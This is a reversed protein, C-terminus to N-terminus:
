CGLKAEDVGFFYSYVVLNCGTDLLMAACSYDTVIAGAFENVTREVVM